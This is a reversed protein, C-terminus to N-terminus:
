LDSWYIWQIQSILELTYWICYLPVVSIAKINKKLITKNITNKKHHIKVGNPNKWVEPPIMPKFLILDM